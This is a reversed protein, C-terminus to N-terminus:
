RGTKGNEPKKTRDPETTDPKKLANDKNLNDEKEKAAPKQRILDKEDIRKYVEELEKRLAINDAKLFNNAEKLSKIEDRLAKTEKNCSSCLVLILVLFIFHRVFKM